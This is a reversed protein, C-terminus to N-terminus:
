NECTNSLYCWIPKCACYSKRIMGKHYANALFQKDEFSPENTVHDIHWLFSKFMKKEKDTLERKVSDSKLFYEGKDVAEPSNFHRFEEKLM